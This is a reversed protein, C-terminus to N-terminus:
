ILEEVIVAIEKQGKVTKLFEAHKYTVQRVVRRVGYERGVVKYMEHLGKGAGSKRFEPKIYFAVGVLIWESNQPNLYPHGQVFGVIEGNWEAVFFYQAPNKMYEIAQQMWVEKNPKWGLEEELAMAEWLDAILPLDCYFARRCNLGSRKRLGENILGTTVFNNVSGNFAKFYPPCDIDYLDVNTVDYWSVLEVKMGEFLVNAYSVKNYVGDNVLEVEGLMTLYTLMDSVFIKEKADTEGWLNSAAKIRISCVTSLFPTMLDFAENIQELSDIVFLCTWIKIGLKQCLELFRVDAGESEKHMSLSITVINDRILGREILGLLYEETLNVGNTLIDVQGLKRLETILRPLESHTTPEGGTLVFPALHKNEEAEKLIDEVSREEGNGKHYCYKCKINCKDTVDILYGDYINKNGQRECFEYWEISREVMGTFVGHVNCQKSIWVKDTTYVLAPIEKYCIPCLSKTLKTLKTM